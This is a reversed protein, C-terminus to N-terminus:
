PQVPQPPMKVSLPMTLSLFVSSGELRREVDFEKNVNLRLAIPLKGGVMVTTAATLGVGSVKGKFPGLVAGTGSDDSIQSMHYGVVGLSFTPSIAKEISGQIHFEDGSNYNTAKNTGNFTVGAKASVDWGTAPDNWTLALSGDIASRHLALNALEGERYNGIPLSVMTSAQVHLKGAQWGLMGSLVPDGVTFASDEVSTSIVTGGPGTLVAGVGVDTNGFPMTAGLALTGGLFNTSPVWLVTPFDAIVTANMGVVLKGGIEFEQGASADGNYFYIRNDFYIGKLPPMIATGAKGDGLLVLSTGGETAHAVGSTSALALTLPGVWALKTAANKKTKTKDPKNM